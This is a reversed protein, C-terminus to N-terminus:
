RQQPQQRRQEGAVAVADLGAQGVVQFNPLAGEGSASRGGRVGGWPGSTDGSFVFVSACLCLSAPPSTLSIESLERERTGGDGRRREEGNMKRNRHMLRAGMM